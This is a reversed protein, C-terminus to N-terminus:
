YEGIKQLHTLLETVGGAFPYWQSDIDSKLSTGLTLYRKYFRSLYLLETDSLADAEKYLGGDHGTFFPTDYIDTYLRRALGELYTKREDSPEKELNIDRPAFKGKLKYINRRIIIFIIIALIIGAIWWRYKYFFQGM